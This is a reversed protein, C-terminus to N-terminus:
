ISAHGNPWAGDSLSRPILEQLHPELTAERPGNRNREMAYYLKNRIGQHGSTRVGLTAESVTLISVEDRQPRYSISSSRRMRSYPERLCHHRTQLVFVAALFAVLVLFGCGVVVTSTITAKSLTVPGQQQKEAVASAFLLNRPAGLPM